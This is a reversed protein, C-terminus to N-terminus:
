ASMLESEQAFSGYMNLKPFDFFQFNTAFMFLNKVIPFSKCLHWYERIFRKAQLWIDEVPNQEPAYPAFLEYTIWWETKELGENVEGLYEPMESFRHYSAGDWFILIRTGPNRARLYKLFLVTNESNGAGYGRVFFHKTQYNLGGFYTQKTKENAVPIEIRIGTKGWVYGCVDGWLLHCEDIMYVVIKVAEIDERNDEM